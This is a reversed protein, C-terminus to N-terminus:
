TNGGNRRANRKPKIVNHYHYNQRCKDSCFAKKSHPKREKSGPMSPALSFIRGCYRCSRLEGSSIMLQYMQLYMAGLLNRPQWSGSVLEPGPPGSQRQSSPRYDFAPYPFAFAELVEQVDM